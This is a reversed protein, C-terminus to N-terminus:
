PRLLSRRGPGGRLPSCSPPPHLSFGSRREARHSPRPPVSCCTRRSAAAKAACLAQQARAQACPAPATGRGTLGAAGCNNNKRERAERIRKNKYASPRGSARPLAQCVRRCTHCTSMCGLGPARKSAGRRQCCVSCRAPRAAGPFSLLSSVGEGRILLDVGLHLRSHPWATGRLKPLVLKQCGPAKWKSSGCEPCAALNNPYRGLPGSGTMCAQGLQQSRPASWGASGAMTRAASTPMGSPANPPMATLVRAAPAAVQTPCHWALRAIGGQVWM